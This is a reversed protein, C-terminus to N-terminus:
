IQILLLFNFKAKNQELIHLGWGTGDERPEVSAIQVEEKHLEKNSCVLSGEFYCKIGFTYSPAM